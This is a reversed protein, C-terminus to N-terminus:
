LSQCSAYDQIMPYAAEKAMDRPHSFLLHLKL